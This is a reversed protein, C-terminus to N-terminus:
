AKGDVANGHAASGEALQFIINADGLLELRERRNFHIRKALSGLANFSWAKFIPLPVDISRRSCGRGVAPLGALSM